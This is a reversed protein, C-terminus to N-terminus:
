INCDDMYMKVLYKYSWLLLFIVQLHSVISSYSSYMYWPCRKKVCSVFATCLNQQCGTLQLCKKKESQSKVLAHKINQLATRRKRHKELFFQFM